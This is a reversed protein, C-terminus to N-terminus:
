IALNHAAIYRFHNALGFAVWVEALALSHLHAVILVVVDTDDTRVMVRRHGQQAADALHVIIRTDAEEHTCLELLDCDERHPSTLVHEGCTSYVEKGDVQILSVEEALFHFLESKNESVRLFSKWNRPIQSASLVRRRIGAGRRERVEAKLSDVRYVDWIVDVRNTSELQRRVYPIFVNDTYEQFTKATGPSLMHVIVAGDLLIADVPPREYGVRDPGELIHLLDSTNGDRLNGLKYLAPPWPQNEYKFFETLNGDRSQCAIYLRSFLSCDDQLFAVQGKKKPAMIKSSLLLLKNKKVFYRNQNTM